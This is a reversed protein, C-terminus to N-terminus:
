NHSTLTPVIKTSVCVLIGPNLGSQGPIVASLATPVMHFDLRSRNVLCSDLGWVSDTKWNFKPSKLYSLSTVLTWEQTGDAKLSYSFERRPVGTHGKGARRPITRVGAAFIFHLLM